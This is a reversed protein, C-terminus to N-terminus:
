NSVYKRGHGCARTFYIKKRDDGNETCIKTFGFGMCWVYNKYYEIVENKSNFIMGVKPEM